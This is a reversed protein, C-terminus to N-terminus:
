QGPVIAGIITLPPRNSPQTQHFLELFYELPRVELECSAASRELTTVDLLELGTAGAMALQRLKVPCQVLAQVRRHM